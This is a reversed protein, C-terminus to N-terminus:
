WLAALDARVALSVRPVLRHETFGADRLARTLFRHADARAEVSVGRARGPAYDVGVGILPFVDRAGDRFVGSLRAPLYRLGGVTARVGLGPALARRLAVSLSLAGLGGLDESQGTGDHRRLGSWSVELLAEGSWGRHAPLAVGVGLAPGVGPRLDLPTVISDHVLTASYRAGASLHVAVQAALTLLPGCTLAVAIGVARLNKGRSM